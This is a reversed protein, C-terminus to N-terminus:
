YTYVFLLGVAECAGSILPPQSGRSNADNNPCPLARTLARHLRQTQWQQHPAFYFYLLKALSFKWRILTDMAYHRSGLNKLGFLPPIICFLIENQLL